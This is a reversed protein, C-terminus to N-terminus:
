RPMTLVSCSRGGGFLSPARHPRVTTDKAPTVGAAAAAGALSTRLSLAGDSCVFVACQAVSRGTAAAIIARAVWRIRGVAGTRAATPPTILREFDEPSHDEEGLTQLVRWGDARAVTGDAAEFLAFARRM